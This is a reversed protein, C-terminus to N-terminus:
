KSGIASSWRTGGTVSSFDGRAGKIVPVSEGSIASEDVAAIGEVIEGDGPILDGKEIIIMDGRRLETSSVIEIDGNKRIRKAETDTQANRLYDAHAKGRGEAFAEAFNAFLITFLLILFIILNHIKRGDTEFTDPFLIMLMVLFAGVEVVFMVPSKLMIIPNLKLVSDLLAKQFYQDVLEDMVVYSAYLPGKYVKVTMVVINMGKVNM